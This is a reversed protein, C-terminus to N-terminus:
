WNIKKNKLSFLILISIITVILNMILSREALIQYRQVDVFLTLPIINNYVNKIENVSSVGIMVRDQNNSMFMYYFCWVHFILVSVLSFIFVNLRVSKKTLTRCLYLLMSVISFFSLISIVKQFLQWIDFNSIILFYIINFFAFIFSYIILIQMKSYKLTYYFYRKRTYLLEYLEYLYYTSIGILFTASIMVGIGNLMRIWEIDGSMFTIMRMVISIGYVYLYVNKYDRIIKKILLCM